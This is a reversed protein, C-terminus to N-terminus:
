FGVVTRDKDSQIRWEFRERLLNYPSVLILVGDDIRLHSRTKTVVGCKKSVEVRIEPPLLM